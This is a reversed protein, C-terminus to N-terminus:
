LGGINSQNAEMWNIYSYSGAKKLEKEEQHNVGLNNRQRIQGPKVVIIDHKSM